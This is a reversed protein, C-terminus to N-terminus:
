QNHKGAFISAGVITPRAADLNCGFLVPEGTQRAISYNVKMSQPISNIRQNRQQTKLCALKNLPPNIASYKKLQDPKPESVRSATVFRLKYKTIALKLIPAVM